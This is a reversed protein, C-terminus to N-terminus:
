FEVGFGLLLQYDSQLPRSGDELETPNYVYDWVGTIDIDLWSSLENELKLIMHHKYRGSKEDTYTLKYDYTFDTINSVEMEFKTSLELAASYVRIDLGNAVTIYKTNVLAPGGSFSWEMTKTHLFTYGIGIGGTLQRDINKYRDIYLESFFPTWFFDRSLYVDYKENVRHDNATDINDKSSIRGLYDLSLRSSSTRRKLNITSSYDQQVTNGRRVDFGLSLKGSWFNRELEGEPAFSVIDKVDFEYNHEGQIVNIKKNKLRIVGSFSALNEINVSIIQYSKIQKIDKFNFTYLGIEDSDFELKDDYLGKIKGKFWERSKTQVWDCSLPTPSLKDWNQKKEIKKKDSIKAKQRVEDDSLGSKDEVVILSEETTVDQATLKVFLLFLLFFSKYM